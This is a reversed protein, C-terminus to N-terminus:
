MGWLKKKLIFSLSINGSMLTNHYTMSVITFAMVYHTLAIVNGLPLQLTVEGQVPVAQTKKEELEESGSCLGAYVEELYWM